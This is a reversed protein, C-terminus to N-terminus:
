FGAQELIKRENGPVQLYRAIAETYPRVTKQLTPSHEELASSTSNLMFVRIGNLAFRDEVPILALGSVPLLCLNKVERQELNLGNISRTYAELIGPLNNSGAISVFNVMGVSPEAIMMSFRSPSISNIDLGIEEFAEKKLAASLPDNAELNKREVGGATLAAHLENSGLAHGKIQSIFYYRGNDEVITLASVNALAPSIASLDENRFSGNKLADRYAEGVLYRTPRLEMQFQGAAEDFQINRCSVSQGNFSTLGRDIQEARTKPAKDYDKREYMQTIRRDLAPDNFLLEDPNVTATIGKIGEFAVHASSTQQLQMRLM